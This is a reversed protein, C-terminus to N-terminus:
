KRTWYDRRAVKKLLLHRGDSSDYRVLIRDAEASFAFTDTTDNTEVQLLRCRRRTGSADTITEWGIERLTGVSPSMPRAHNSLWSPWVRVAHERFGPKLFRLSLFLQDRFLDGSKVELEAVGDGEKGFYSHFVYTPHTTWSRYLHFTNGCWEQSGVTAKYLKWPDSRFVFLSGLIRYMYNPTPVLLVINQKLIDAREGGTEQGEYKVHNGLDFREKVTILTAERLPNDIGYIRWTGEYSAVEALGDDWVAGPREAGPLSAEQPREKGAKQTM